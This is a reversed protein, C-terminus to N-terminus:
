NKANWVSSLEWIHGKDLTIEGGESFIRVKDYPQVPYTLSTLVLEGDNVFLEISSWDMFIRLSLKDQGTKYPAIQKQPFEPSFNLSDSISRKLTFQDKEFSYEMLLTDGASNTWEIGFGTAAPGVSKNFDLILESQDIRIAGFDIEHSGPITKKQIAQSTQRLKQLEQVPKSFLVYEDNGVSKLQLTRPLTMASRWPDTPVENAYQWNSMWGMFIRRDDPADSWTVGAYNDKGYDVWRTKDDIAKFRSGDFDGIFYQTASGGNPGGSGISVLMVWKSESTGEVPLKFLDPCEWVGGHAGTNKGFQSEAKWNILDPSSFIRVKDEASIIMIWKETEEHWFVKPDRFGLSNEDKLVPNGEYKEWSRGKDLSYAVAQSEFGRPSEKRHRYTFIAVMPPNEKSGFGTTNQWDIVASGSFIFGISDPYLAVPLYEWHVLDKSVAHGWHMPGWVKSEPHHQYFLHYEGQYYVMGNPDNMWMEKPTFHYQPRYKEQHSRSSDTVEKKESTATGCGTTLVVLLGFIIMGPITSLYSKM